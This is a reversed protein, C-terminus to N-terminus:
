TVAESPPFSWNGRFHAILLAAQTLTSQSGDQM